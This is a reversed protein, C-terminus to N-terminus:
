KKDQIKYQLQLNYSTWTWHGMMGYHVKLKRRRRNKLKTTQERKSKDIEAPKPIVKDSVFLNCYLKFIHEKKTVTFVISLVYNTKRFPKTM